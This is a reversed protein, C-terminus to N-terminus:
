YRCGQLYMWGNCYSRTRLRKVVRSLVVEIVCCDQHGNGVEFVQLRWDEPWRRPGNLHLYTELEGRQELRIGAIM